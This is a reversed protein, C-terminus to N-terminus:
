EGINKAFFFSVKEDNFERWNLSVDAWKAEDEAPDPEQDGRKLHILSWYHGSNARGRHICVGTLRYVFDEDEYSMMELIEKNAPDNKEEESLDINNKCSYKSLNLLM